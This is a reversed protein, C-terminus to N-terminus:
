LETLMSIVIVLSSVFNCLLFCFVSSLIADPVVPAAVELAKKELLPVTFRPMKLIKKM